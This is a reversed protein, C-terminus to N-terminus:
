NKSMVASSNNPDADGCRWGAFPDRSLDALGAPPLRHRIVENTIAVTDVTLGKRAANARHANAVVSLAAIATASRNHQVVSRSSGVRTGRGHSRTRRAADADHAASTGATNCRCESVDPTPWFSVASSTQGPSRCCEAAASGRRIAGDNRGSRIESVSVKTALISRPSRRMSTISNMAIARAIPRSGM